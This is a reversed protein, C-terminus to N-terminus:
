KKSFGFLYAIIGLITTVIAGIGGAIALLNKWTIKFDHIWLHDENIQKLIAVPQFEEITQEVKHIRIDHDVLKDTTGDKLEKMDIVYQSIFTRFNARLEILVDHDSEPKIM